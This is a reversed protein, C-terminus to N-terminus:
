NEMTSGERHAMYGFILTLVLADLGSRLLMELLADAFILGIFVNFWIWNLGILVFGIFAARGGPSRHGQWMPRLVYYTAVFVVGLIVTWGYVAVSHQEVSSAYVGSQYGIARIATVGAVMAIGGFWGSPAAGTTGGNPCKGIGNVTPATIRGWIVCILLAPLADAIGMFIQYRIFEWGWYAFPSAEVVVEQMGWMYVLAFMFGLRWGWRYAGPQQRRTCFSVAWLCHCFLVFFYLSVTIPFGIRQVLWSDFMIEDVPAPVVAHLVISLATAILVAVGGMAVQIWTSRQEKKQKM